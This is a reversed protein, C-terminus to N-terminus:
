NLATKTAALSTKVAVGAYEARRLLFRLENGYTVYTVTDTPSHKGANAPMAAM